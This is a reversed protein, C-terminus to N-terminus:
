RGNTTNPRERPQVMVRVNHVVTTHPSPWTPLLRNNPRPTAM